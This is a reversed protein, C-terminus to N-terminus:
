CKITKKQKTLNNCILIMKQSLYPKVPDNIVNNYYGIKLNYKYLLAMM